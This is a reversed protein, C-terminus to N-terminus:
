YKDCKTFNHLCARVGEKVGQNDENDGHEYYDNNQTHMQSIYSLAPSDKIEQYNKRTASM